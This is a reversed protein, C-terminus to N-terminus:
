GRRDESVLFGKDNRTGVPQQAAPHRKLQDPVQSDTSELYQKMDYMINKDNETIFTMSVGSKGARGTRGIRHTYSEIKDPCDYNFVHSVDPIDLGRAAVDTAVLIKFQGRRFAELTEERQDQSKGGHLVGLQIGNQELVYGVTDAGKKHNVFVIAKDDRGLQRLLQTIRTKKEPESLFMMRQEIRKNKGSDVDGIKIVAPHRLYQKAIREVEVPMTASFMATVRVNVLGKAAKQAQQLAMNEDESKLSGGMADLVATLAMEFGMDVMRDAEDLVIYNCQNLVLYNNALCDVLRGPTGVVVHVGKRLRVGQGEIDVGGIICMTEFQTYRALKVAEEDIQQALERTPAMIVGFPGNEAVSEKTTRAAPLSLIYCWLPVLFACTKGSGTEAIGIIDRRALGVPIAQRQIPSPDKYGLSSIAHAIPDPLDAELWNRLPPLPHGGQVRIDYDERFIRWDRETMAPLAKESWHLGMAQNTAADFNALDIAQHSRLAKAAQMREDERKRREQESLETNQREEERADQMRKEALSILFSSNKRQDRSDIGAISGRGFLPNIKLRQGYLPNSDGKMTDEENGWEKKFVIQGGRKKNQAAVRSRNSANLDFNDDKRDVGVYQRRIANLESDWENADKHDEQQQQRKDKEEQQRRKFMEQKRDQEARGTAFRKQADELEHGRDEKEARKASLRLLAAASREEKSMFKPKMVPADDTTTASTTSAAHDSTRIHVPTAEKEVSVSAATAKAIARAAAREEARKAIQEMRVAEEKEEETMPVRGHADDDENKGSSTHIPAIVEGEEEIRTRKKSM